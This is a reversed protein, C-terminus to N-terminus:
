HTHIISNRICAIISLITEAFGLGGFYLPFCRTSSPIKMWYEYPLSYATLVIINNNIILIETLICSGFIKTVLEQENICSGALKGSEVLGKESINLFIFLFYDDIHWLSYVHRISLSEKVHVVNEQHFGQDQVNAYTTAEEPVDM